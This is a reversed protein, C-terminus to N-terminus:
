FTTIYTAKLATMVLALVAMCFMTTIRQYGARIIATMLGITITQIFRHFELENFTSKVNSATLVDDGLGGDAFNVYTLSDNGEDQGGYFVIARSSIATKSLM